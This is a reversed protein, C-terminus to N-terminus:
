AAGTRREEAFKPALEEMQGLVQRIAGPQRDPPYRYKILLHKITSRLKARVDDRVAWDIRTDNRMVRVLDRAIQGLIDDGMELVASDNEHVADYFALEDADLAPTFNKGREREAVAGRAMAIMASIVQASTLHQNNYRNMLERIRVSFDTSRVLTAM